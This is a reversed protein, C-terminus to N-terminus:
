KSEEEVYKDIEKKIVYLKGKYDNLEDITEKCLKASQEFLTISEDVGIDEGDLKDTIEKIKNLKEELTM